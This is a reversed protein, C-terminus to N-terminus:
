QKVKRREPVREPLEREDILAGSCVPCAEDELAKLRRSCDACIRWVYHCVASM